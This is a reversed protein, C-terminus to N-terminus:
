LMVRIFLRSRKRVLIRLFLRFYDNSSMMKNNIEATQSGLAEAFAAADAIRGIRTDPTRWVRHSIGTPGATSDPVM